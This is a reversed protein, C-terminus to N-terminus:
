RLLGAATMRVLGSLTRLFQRGVHKRCQTMIQQPIFETVPSAFVLAYQGAIEAPIRRLLAPTSETQSPVSPPQPTVGVTHRDRRNELIRSSCGM